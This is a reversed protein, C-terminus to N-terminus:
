VLADQVAWQDVQVKFELSVSSGLSVRHVLLARQDLNDWVARHDMPDREVLPDRLELCVLSDPTVLTVV